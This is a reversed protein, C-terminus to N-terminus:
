RLPAISLIRAAILASAVAHAIVAAARHSRLRIPRWVRKSLGCDAHEARNQQQGASARENGHESVQHIPEFPIPWDAIELIRDSKPGNAEQERSKADRQDHDRALPRPPPS